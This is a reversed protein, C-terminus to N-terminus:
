AALVQIGFQINIYNQDRNEKYYLHMTKSWNSYSQFGQSAYTMIYAAM